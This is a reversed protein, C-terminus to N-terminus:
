YLQRNAFTQSKLAGDVPEKIALFWIISIAGAERDSKMFSFGSYRASAFGSKRSKFARFYPPFLFRLDFFSLIRQKDDEPINFFIHICCVAPLLLWRRLVEFWPPSASAPWCCFGTDSSSAAPHNGPLEPLEGRHILFFSIIGATPSASSLASLFIEFNFNDM